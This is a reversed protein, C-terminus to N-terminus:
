NKPKLVTHKNDVLSLDGSVNTIISIVIEQTHYTVTFSKEHVLQRAIDTNTKIGYGTDLWSVVSAYYKAQRLEAQGKEHVVLVLGAAIGVISVLFLVGAIIFNKRTKKLSEDRIALAVFIAIILFMTAVVLPVGFTTLTPHFIGPNALIHLM